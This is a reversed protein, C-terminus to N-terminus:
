ASASPLLSSTTGGCASSATLARASTGSKAESVVGGCRPCKGVVERGTPFLISAEAVPSYDAVLGSVMHEIDALFTDADLEGREIQKLRHEWEATLLPSRLAEPLVTM